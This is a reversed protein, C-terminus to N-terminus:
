TDMDVVKCIKTSYERKYANTQNIGEDIECLLANLSDFDNRGHSFRYFSFDILLIQM